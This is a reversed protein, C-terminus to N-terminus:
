MRTPTSIGLLGLARTLVESVLRTLELYSGRRSPDEENIIQHEHYFTSFDAALRYSYDCLFNPARRLWSSAVAEPFETLALTLAREIKSSPPLVNGPLFGRQMAKRLVSRARTAAYLLYPGTRGEFSSFKELDFVYDRSYHNSLDAFKLTALAVQSTIERREHEGLDATIGSNSLRKAAAGEVLDLLEKLKMTGGARTKFPKGDLGNMTGFGIHELGLDESAIGVKRAAQFLQQFHTAQRSDVVYIIDDPSYDRVRQEITALDTTGYLVAGDSKRLMLPPLATGKEPDVIEIVVAGQSEIAAGTALLREVLPQVEERTDSEGMWLDFDVDLRDYDAHLDAKSVDLFHRWLARYGRRGSQLELTASRAKAAFEEDSKARASASPYMEDLDEVTVPSVSPYEGAFAPDFYPLDAKRSQLELILMGMQLGWDGLHIDGIVQHGICRGIRKLAEGLIASRLHGVHLPKAVNAGGFDLVVVHPPLALGSCGMSKDSAIEALNSALYGDAVTLNLFGPEAFEVKSFLGTHGLSAAIASGLDRMTLEDLGEIRLLGNCQFQCRHPMRSHEVHGLTSDLGRAQFEYEVADSVRQRLFKM